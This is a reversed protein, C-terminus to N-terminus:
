PAIIEVRPSLRQSDPLNFTLLRKVGHTLMITVLNTDRVQVNLGLEHRILVIM